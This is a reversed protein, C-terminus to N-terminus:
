PVGPALPRASWDYATWGVEQDGAVDFLAAMVTREVIATAAEGDLHEIRVNISLGTVRPHDDWDDDFAGVIDAARVESLALLLARARDAWAAVPLGDAGIENEVVWLVQCVSTPPEALRSMDAIASPRVRAVRALIMDSHSGVIFRGFIV